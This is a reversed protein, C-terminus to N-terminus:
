QIGKKEAKVMKMDTILIDYGGKKPLNMKLFICILRCSREM